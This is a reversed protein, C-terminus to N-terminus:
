PLISGAFRSGLYGIVMALTGLVAMEISSKWWDTGGTSGELGRYDGYHSCFAPGGLRFGGPDSQYLFVSSCSGLLRYFIRSRDNVAPSPNDFSEEVLGLEEHMMFRLWLKPDATIRKVIMETESESFGMGRYHEQVEAREMDPMTEIEWRERQIEHEFYERQAKSSLYRRDGHVGIRRHDVRDLGIYYARPPWREPSGPWFGILTVIGDNAGFVV